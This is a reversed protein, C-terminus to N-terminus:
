KIFELLDKYLASEERVTYIAKESFAIDIISQKHEPKLERFAQWITGGRWGHVKLLLELVTVSQM